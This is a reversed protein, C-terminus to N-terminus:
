WRGLFDCPWQRAILSGFLGFDGPVHLAHVDGGLLMAVVTVVDFM